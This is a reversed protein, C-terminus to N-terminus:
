KIVDSYILSLSVISLTSIHWVITPQGFPHWLYGLSWIIFFVIALFVLYHKYEKKKQKM